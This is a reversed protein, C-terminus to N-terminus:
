SEGFSPKTLSVITWVKFNFFLLAAEQPLEPCRFPGQSQRLFNFSSRLDPNFLILWERLCFSVGAAMAM